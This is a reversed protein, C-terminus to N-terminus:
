QAQIASGNSAGHGNAAIEAAHPIAPKRFRILAFHGLPPMKRREVLEISPTRAEWALYREWGFETRWGLKRAAPSVFHEISRRIGSEESLRSALIIEGGPKLVRAFEDLTAEPRPVTSVVYQAMVVDFSNDPFDLNSADMVALQEVHTLGMESVRARAKELMSESIDIGVIRNNPSYDRLAIGTGIGVELIRGGIREAAEIAAQRGRHFIPGFVIDYVPAWKDYAGTVMDNTLKHQAKM